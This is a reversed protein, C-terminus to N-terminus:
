SWSGSRRHRRRARPVRAIARGVLGISLGFLLGDLVPRYGDLPVMRKIQSSTAGFSMGCASRARATLTVNSQIGYLGAMALLPTIAGLGIATLGFGRAQGPVTLSCRADRGSRDTAVDPDAGPDGRM